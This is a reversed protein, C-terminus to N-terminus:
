REFAGEDRAIRRDRRTAKKRRDESQVRASRGPRGDASLRLGKPRLAAEAEEILYQDEILDPSDQGKLNRLRQKTRASTEDARWRKAM